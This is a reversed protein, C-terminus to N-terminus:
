VNGINGTGFITQITASYSVVNNSVAVSFNSIGTVGSVSIIAARVSAEFQAINTSNRWITEFNAVGQDYAYIMEHYQAKAATQCAQLVADLNKSIALNGDSGIFLDNNQNCTFTQITM